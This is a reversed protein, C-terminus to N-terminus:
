DQLRGRASRARRAGWEVLAVSQHQPRASRRRRAGWALEQLNDPVGPPRHVAARARLNNPPANAANPEANPQRAEPLTQFGDINPLTAQMELLTATAEIDSDDMM